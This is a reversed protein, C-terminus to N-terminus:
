VTRCHVMPSPPHYSAFDRKEVSPGDLSLSEVQQVASALQWDINRVKAHTFHHHPRPELDPFFRRGQGNKRTNLFISKFGTHNRDHRPTMPAHVSGPCPAQHKSCLQGLADGFEQELRQIMSCSTYGGVSRLQSVRTSLAEYYAMQDDITILTSVISESATLNLADYRALLNLSIAMFSEDDHYKSVVGKLPPPHSWEGRFKSKNGEHQKGMLSGFQPM